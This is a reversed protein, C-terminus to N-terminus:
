FEFKGSSRSRQVKAVLEKMYNEIINGPLDIQPCEEFTRTSMILAHFAMYQRLNDTGTRRKLEPIVVRSQYVLWDFEYPAINEDKLEAMGDWIQQSLQKLEGVKRAWEAKVDQTDGVAADAPHEPEKITPDEGRPKENEPM